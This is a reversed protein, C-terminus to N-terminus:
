PKANDAGRGDSEQEKARIAKNLQEIYRKIKRRNPPPESVLAREFDAIAKTHEGMKAYVLARLEYAPALDNDLRLSQDCDAIAQEFAELQRHLRARQLLYAPNKPEIDIATDLDYLARQLDGLERYANAREFYGQSNSRGLHIAASFDALAETQKDLLVFSEGRKLYAEVREPELELAKDFDALSREFEAEKQRILGRNFYASAYAPALEIAKDYSELAQQYQGLYFYSTGQRNHAVADEANISIAKDLAELAADFQRQEINMWGLTSYAEANDPDLALAKALVREAQEIQDRQIYVRGLAVLYDPSDAFYSETEEPDLQLSDLVQGLRDVPVDTLKTSGIGAKQFKDKLTDSLSQRTMEKRYAEVNRWYGVVYHLNPGTQAAFYIAHLEAESLAVKDNNFALFDPRNLDTAKDMFLRLASITCIGHENLFERKEKTTNIHLIAQDIWHMLEQASFRSNLLLEPVAAAALNQVNDIGSERLRVEHWLSIGDVSSLPEEDRDYVYIKKMMSNFVAILWRLGTDPIYGIVFAVVPITDPVRGLSRELLVAAVIAIAQVTFIRMTVYLYVTPQLDLTTYRRYLFYVSFCYAGLFSFFAISYVGEVNQPEIFNTELVPPFRFLGFGLLTALVAMTVYVFFQQTSYIRRYVQGVSMGRQDDTEIGLLKFDDQVRAEHVKVRFQRYSLYVLPFYSTLAIILIWQYWPQTRYLLVVAVSLLLIILFMGRLLAFWAKANSETDAAAVQKQKASDNM